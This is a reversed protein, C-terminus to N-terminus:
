ERGKYYIKNDFRLDLYLLNKIDSMTLKSGKLFSELDVLVKDLDQNSNWMIEPGNDLTLIYDGEKNLISVSKMELKGLSNIFKNVRAFENEELIYKDVPDNISPDRRYVLYVGDTFDPAESYIYGTNDLFYCSEKDVVHACYLAAPEREVVEVSVGRFGNLSVSASALRPIQKDLTDVIQDKPYFLTSSKPILGLYYGSLREKVLSEVESSQTVMNGSVSVQSVKLKESRLLFIPGVIILLFALTFLFQYFKKEREKKKHFEASRVAGKSGVLKM